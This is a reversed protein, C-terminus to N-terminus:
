ASAEPPLRLSNVAKRIEQRQLDSLGPCEQFEFEEVTLWKYCESCQILGMHTARKGSDRHPTVVLKPSYGLNNM